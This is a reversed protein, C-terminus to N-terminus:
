SISFNLLSSNSNFIITFYFLLSWVTVWYYLMTTFLLPYGKTGLFSSSPFTVGCLRTIYITFVTYEELFYSYSGVFFERKKLLFKWKGKFLNLINQQLILSLLVYIHWHMLHKKKLHHMQSSLTQSFVSINKKKEWIILSSNTIIQLRIM